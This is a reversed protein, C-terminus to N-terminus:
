DNQNHRSWASVRLQKGYEAANEVDQYALHSDGDTGISEIPRSFDLPNIKSEKNQKHPFQQLLRYVLELCNDDLQEIEQKLDETSIM